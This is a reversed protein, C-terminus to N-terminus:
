HWWLRDDSLENQRANENGTIVELMKEQFHCPNSPRSSLWAASKLNM